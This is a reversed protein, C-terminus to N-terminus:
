GATVHEKWRCSFKQWEEFLVRQGDDCFLPEYSGFGSAVHKRSLSVLHVHPRSSSGADGPVHLVVLTSLRRRRALCESAFAYGMDFMDHRSDDLSFRLTTVILGETRDPLLEAQYRHFLIAPEEWNDDVGPALAMRSDAATMPWAQGPRPQVNLPEEPNLKAFAFAPLSNHKGRMTTRVLGVSFDEHLTGLPDSFMMDMAEFPSLWAPRLSM